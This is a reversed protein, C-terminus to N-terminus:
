NEQQSFAKQETTHAKIQKFSETMVPVVERVDGVIGLSAIRFIPAGPDTNIAIITQSSRMGMVHQIAGSIGCAIYLDPSVVKGTVGVMSERSRWKLDVAMRTAAVRGGLVEALEDLLRFHERDQMGKGGAVIVEADVLDVQSPIEHIVEEVYVPDTAINTPISLREVSLSGHPGIKEVDMVKSALLIMKIDQKQFSVIMSAHPRYAPRTVLTREGPNHVYTAETVLGCRLRASLRPAIERSLPTSGFFLMDPRQSLLLHEICQVYASTSTSFVRDELIIVRDPGFNNVETPLGEPIAPGLILATAIGNLQRSQRVAECLAEQSSRNIKENSLEIFAWIDKM